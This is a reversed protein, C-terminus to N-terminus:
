PDVKARKESDSSRKTEALFEIISKINEAVNKKNFSPDDQVIENLFALVRSDPLKFKLTLKFCIPM